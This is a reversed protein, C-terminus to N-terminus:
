VDPGQHQLLYLHAERQHRLTLARASPLAQNSGQRNRKTRSHTRRQSSGQRPTTCTGITPAGFLAM